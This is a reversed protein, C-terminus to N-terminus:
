KLRTIKVGGIYSRLPRDDTFTTGAPFRYKVHVTPRNPAVSTVKFAAGGHISKKPHAGTAGDWIYLTFRPCGGGFIRRQCSVKDSWPQYMEFLYDGAPLQSDSQAFKGDAAVSGAPYGPITSNGLLYYHATYSQGTTGIRSDPITRVIAVQDRNALNSVDTTLNDVRGLVGCPSTASCGTQSGNAKGLNTTLADVKTTLGSVSTTLTTVMDTLTKIKEDLSEEDGGAISTGDAALAPAFVPAFVVALAALMNKM